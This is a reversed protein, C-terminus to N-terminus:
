QKNQEDGFLYDFPAPMGVTKWEARANALFRRGQESNPMNLFMQQTDPDNKINDQLQQWAVQKSAGAQVMGAFGLGASQNENPDHILM